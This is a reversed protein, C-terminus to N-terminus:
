AVLYLVALGAIVVCFFFGVFSYSAVQLTKGASSCQMQSSQEESGTFMEWSRYDQALRTWGDDPTNM